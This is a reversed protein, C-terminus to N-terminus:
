SKIRGVRFVVPHILHKQWGVETAPRIGSGPIRDDVVLHSSPEILQFVAACGDPDDEVAAMGARHRSRRLGNFPMAADCRLGDTDRIRCQPGGNM